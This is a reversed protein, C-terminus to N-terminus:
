NGSMNVSMLVQFYDFLHVCIDALYITVKIKKRKAEQNDIYDTSCEVDTQPEALVFIRDLLV